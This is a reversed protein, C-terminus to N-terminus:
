FTYDRALYATVAEDMFETSSQRRLAGPGPPSRWEPSGSDQLAVPSSSVGGHSHQERFAALFAAADDRSIGMMEAFRPVVESDDLDRGGGAASASAEEGTEGRRAAAASLSAAAYPDQTSSITPMAAVAALALAEEAAEVDADEQTIADLSSADAVASDGAAVRAAAAETAAAAAAAVAVVRPHSDCRVLADALAEISPM